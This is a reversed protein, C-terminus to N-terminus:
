GPYSDVVRDGALCGPDSLGPGVPSDDHHHTLNKLILLRERRKRERERERERRLLINRNVLLKIEKPKRYRCSSYPHCATNELVPRTVPLYLQQTNNINNNNQNKM